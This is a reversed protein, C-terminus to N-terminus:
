NSTVRGALWGLTAYYVVPLNWHPLSKFSGARYKLDDQRRGRNTPSNGDPPLAGYGRPQRDKENRRTSDASEQDATPTSPGQRGLEVDPRRFKDVCDCKLVCFGGCFVTPADRLIIHRNGTGTAQRQLAIGFDSLVDSYIGLRTRTKLVRQLGATKCRVDKMKLVLRFAARGEIDPAMSAAFTRFAVIPNLVLYPPIPRLREWRRFAM